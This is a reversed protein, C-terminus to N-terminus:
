RVIYKVTYNLAEKGTIQMTFLKLPEIIMQFNLPLWERYRAIDDDDNVM